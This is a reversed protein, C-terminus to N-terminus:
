RPMWFLLLVLWVVFAMANIGMFGQWALVSGSVATIGAAGFNMFTDVTGQMPMRLEPETSQAVLSSGAILTCSWGLGLLMLAPILRALHSEGVADLIGGVFALAFIGMGIGIVMRAGFRDTAWGVLPSLGYMGLIHSSVLAALSFAVISFLYPGVLESLGFHRGIADGPASLQPGAM